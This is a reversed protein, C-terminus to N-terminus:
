ICCIIINRFIICIYKLFVLYWGYSHFNLEFSIFTEPEEFTVSLPMDLKSTLSVFDPTDGILIIEFPLFYKIIGFVFNEYM